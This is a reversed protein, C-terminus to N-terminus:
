VQQDLVLVVLGHGVDIVQRGNMAHNLSLDSRPGMLDMSAYPGMTLHYQPPLEQLAVTPM